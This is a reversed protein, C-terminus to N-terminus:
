GNELPSKNISVVLEEPPFLRMGTVGDCVMGNGRMFM